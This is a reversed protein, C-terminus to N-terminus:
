GLCQKQVTFGEYVHGDGAAVACRCGCGRCTSICSVMDPYAAVGPAKTIRPSVADSVRGARHALGELSQRCGKGGRRDGVRQGVLEIGGDFGKELAIVVNVVVVGLAKVIIEV